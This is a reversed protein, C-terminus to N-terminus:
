RQTKKTDRVPFSIELYEKILGFGFLVMVYTYFVSGLLCVVIVGESFGFFHYLIFGMFFSLIINFTFAQFIGEPYCGDHEWIEGNIGLDARIALIFFEKIDSLVVKAKKM